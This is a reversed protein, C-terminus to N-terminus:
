SSPTVPESGLQLLEANWFGVAQNVASVRPDQKASLVAITPIRTWPAAGSRPRATEEAHACSAAVTFAGLSSLFGRRDV